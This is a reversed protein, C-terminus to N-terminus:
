MPEIHREALHENTVSLFLLSLSLSISVTVKCHLFLAPVVKVVCDILTFGLCSMGQHPTFYM